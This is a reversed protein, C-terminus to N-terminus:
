SEKRRARRWRIVRESRSNNRTRQVGDMFNIPGRVALGVLSRLGNRKGGEGEVAEEEAM